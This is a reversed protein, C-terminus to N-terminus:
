IHILSLYVALQIPRADVQSFLFGYKELQQKHRSRVQEAVFEVVDDNNDHATSKYDVIWRLGDDDVFTRDLRYKNVSGDEIASLTFENHSEPYDRFLFHAESHAQINEIAVVLRQVAYELAKVPVRLNVLEARWRQRLKANIELSLVKEASYQLCDHM